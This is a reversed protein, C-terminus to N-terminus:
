ASVATKALTRCKRVKPSAIRAFDAKTKQESSDVKENRENRSVCWGSKEVITYQPPKAAEPKFYYKVRSATSRDTAVPSLERIKEPFRSLVDTMGSVEPM